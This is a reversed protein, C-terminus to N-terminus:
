LTSSKLFDALSLLEARLMSNLKPSNLLVFSQTGELKSLELELRKSIERLWQSFNMYKMVTSVFAVVLLDMSVRQDLEGVSSDGEM